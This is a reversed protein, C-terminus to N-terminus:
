KAILLGASDYAYLYRYSEQEILSRDLDIDEILRGKVDFKLVNWLLPVVPSATTPNGFDQWAQRKGGPLLKYSKTSVDVVTTEVFQVHGVLGYSKQDTRMEQPWVTCNTFLYLALCGLIAVRIM